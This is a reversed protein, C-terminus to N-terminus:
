YSIYGHSSNLRTSKRDLTGVFRAAPVAHGGQHFGLAARPLAHLILLTRLRERLDCLRLSALLSVCPLLPLRHARDWVALRAGPPPILATAVLSSLLEGM